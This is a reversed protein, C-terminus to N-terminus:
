RWRHGDGLRPRYPRRNLPLSSAMFSASPGRQRSKHNRGDTLTGVPEGAALGPAAHRWRRYESRAEERMRAAYQDFPLLQGISGKVPLSKVLDKDLLKEFRHEPANV